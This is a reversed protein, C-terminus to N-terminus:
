SRHKGKMAKMMEASRKRRAEREAETANPMARVENRIREYDAAASAQYKLMNEEALSAVETLRQKGKKICAQQYEGLGVAATNKAWLGSDIAEITRQRMTAQKAAAAQGPAKTVSMVGDEYDQGSDALRRGYKRAIKSPDKAAM